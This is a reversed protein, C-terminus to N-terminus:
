YKRRRIMLKKFKKNVEGQCCLKIGQNANDPRKLDGICSQGRSVFYNPIDRDAAFVGTETKWIGGCSQCYTCIPQGQYQKCCLPITEGAKYRNRLDGTCNIDYSSSWNLFNKDRMVGGAEIFGQGCTLCQKCSTKIAANEKKCCLKIGNTYTKGQSFPQACQEGYAIWWNPSLDDQANIGTLEEFVGGCSTCLRCGGIVETVEYPKDPPPGECSKLKKSQKLYSCYENLAKKWILRNKLWIQWHNV